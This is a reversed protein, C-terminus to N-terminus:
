CGRGQNAEKRTGLAAGRRAAVLEALVSLAIEPATRAGIALGVPGRIRALAEPAHGRAALRELRSAHTTRSGLAGVFFVGARLAADLAPDDLKPDHTLTVVATRGDPALTALAEDPWAQILKIDPFRDATAFGRRPDIVTAAYGAMAAMPALAQAIHVAGVILLRPAPAEIQLFWTEAGVQVTRAEDAAVVGAAAECLAGPAAPDPLLIQFGDPLRTALTVTAGSARCALLRALIDPTM